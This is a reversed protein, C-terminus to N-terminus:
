LDVLLLMYIGRRILEKQIAGWSLDSLDTHFAENLDRVVEQSSKRDAHQLEEIFDDFSTPEDLELNGQSFPKFKGYQNYVIVHSTNNPYKPLNNTKIFVSNECIEDKVYFQDFDGISHFKASCYYVHNGQHALSILTNHQSINLGNSIRSRSKSAVRTNLEFLYYPVEFKRNKYYKANTRRLYCPRKFQLFIPVAAKIEIDYGLSHEEYPTPSYFSRNKARGFRLGKKLEGLVSISFQFESFEAKM